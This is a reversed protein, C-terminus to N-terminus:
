IFHAREGVNLIEVNQYMGQLMQGVSEPMLVEPTTYSNLM